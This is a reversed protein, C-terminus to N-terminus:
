SAPILHGWRDRIYTSHLFMIESAVGGLREVERHFQRGHNHNLSHSSEHILIQISEAGTPNEWFCDVELALTLDNNSSWHASFTSIVTGFQKPKSGLALHGQVAPGKIKSRTLLQQCFWVAFELCDNVRSEGGRKDIWMQREDISSHNVDQTSFKEEAVQNAIETEVEEVVEKSSPVHSKIMQRFGGSMQSTKVIEAGLSRQADDDFDRKGMNPVSRVINSGFAQRIIQKQVDAECKAGAIGVWDSKIQEANLDSLIVPLCASHIKIAYGSAYADRNPNMPVRSLVNAHYAVTWEAEAVPIGMEYLFPTEGPATQVLEVETKRVPKKWTQSQPDFVETPLAATVTYQPQRPEVIKGNIKFQIHAPTLFRSFYEDFESILTEEWNMIMDVLTGSIPTKLTAQRTKQIGDEEFFTIAQNGSAVKASRATCLVEKFGRGFRGRKRCSDKKHTMYVIRLDALNEIGSGSDKCQVHFFGEKHKYNLKVEGPQDGIADFANQALEKVLHQPPRAQNLAAFGQTSILLWGTETSM